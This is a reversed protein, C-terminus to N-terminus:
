LEGLGGKLVGALWRSSPVGPARGCPVLCLGPTLRLGQCPSLLASLPLLTRNKREGINLFLSLENPACVPCLCSCHYFCFVGRGCAPCQSVKSPLYSLSPCPSLSSFPPCQSCGCSVAAGLGCAPCESICDCSANARCDGAWWRACTAPEKQGPEVCLGGKKPSSPQCYGSLIIVGGTAELSLGSELCSFNM